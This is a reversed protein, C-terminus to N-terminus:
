VHGQKYAAAFMMDGLLKVEDLMCQIVKLDGKKETSM